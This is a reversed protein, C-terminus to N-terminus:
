LAPVPESGPRFRHAEHCAKCSAAIRRHSTRLAALDHAKVAEAMAKADAVHQDILNRWSEEPGHRPKSKALVAALGSFKEGAQQMKGWDPAPADSEIRLVKFPARSVTYQKHMLARISPSGPGEDAAMAALLLPMTALMLPFRRNSM